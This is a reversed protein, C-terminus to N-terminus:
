RNLSGPMTPPVLANVAERYLVSAHWRSLLPFGEYPHKRVSILSRPQSYPWSPLSAPLHPVPDLGNVFSFVDEIDDLAKGLAACGPKPPALAVVLDATSGSQKLLAGALLARAAGLSHGAIRLRRDPYGEMIVLARQLFEQLGEMFGRHCEGLGEVGILDAELDSVIDEPNSTGRFILDITGPGMHLAAVCPEDNWLTWTPANLETYIDCALATLERVEALRKELAM